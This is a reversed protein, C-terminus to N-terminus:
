ARDPTLTVQQNKRGTPRLEPTGAIHRRDVPKKRLNIEEGEKCVQPAKQFKTPLCTRGENGGGKDSGGKM